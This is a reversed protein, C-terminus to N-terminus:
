RLWRQLLDDVASSSLLALHGTDHVVAQRDPDFDLRRDPDEHQGLASAVSVLGDGLLAAKLNGPEPGLSGAVAFCQTGAPLGVREGRGAGEGDAPARVVNGQRLDNIGASRVKGIRALPGAYPTAALLVDLGHAAKELPAGQHPTGLCVLDNVRAVWRPNNRQLLGAHHIASRAVLGGMSHGILTLREVPVPWVSYLGEMLQALIRGNTSVSLGTNYHLYVPTYGLSRALSQGHDHGSRQWQLDNMCLGHLLVLLKPGADPLRSRLAHRDLPLPRGEHRFQMSIALPNDTSALHDGLVGNLSALLAEREPRPALQADAAGLAPTLWGLLAEASGGALRTVGRVTQYVLGTLGRTRGADGAGGLGPTDLVRAHMAEVLSALGAVADTTLRAAGRLDAAQLLPQTM